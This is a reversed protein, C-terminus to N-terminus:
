ALPRKRAVGARRPFGPPTAAVKRLVLLGDRVEVLAGGLRAAVTAVRDPEVSPGTWLVAAGGPRVLALCWEAAV